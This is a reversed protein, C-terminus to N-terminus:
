NEGLRKGKERLDNKTVMGDRDKDEAKNEVGKDKLV